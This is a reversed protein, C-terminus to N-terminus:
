NAFDTAVDKGDLLNMLVNLYRDRESGESCIIGEKFFEIAEERSAWEREVNYCVTKITVPKCLFPEVVRDLEKKMIDYMEKYEGTLNAADDTFLMDEPMYPEDENDKFIGFAEYEDISAYTGNKLDMECLFIGGGSHYAYPKGWTREKNEM